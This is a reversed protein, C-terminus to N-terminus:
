KGANSKASDGSLERMLGALGEPTDVDSAELKEHVEFVYKALSVRVSESEANTLLHTLQEFANPLLKSIKERVEKVTMMEGRRARTGSTFEKILAAKDAEQQAIEKKLQDVYTEDPTMRPMICM